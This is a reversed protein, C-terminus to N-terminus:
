WLEVVREETTRPIPHRVPHRASRDKWPRKVGEGVAVDVDNLPSRFEEVLDDHGNQDVHLLRREEGSLFPDSRGAFDKAILGVDLDVRKSSEEDVIRTMSLRM